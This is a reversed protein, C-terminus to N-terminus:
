RRCNSIKEYDKNVHGIGPPEDDVAGFTKDLTTARLGLPDALWRIEV